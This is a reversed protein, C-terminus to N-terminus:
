WSTNVKPMKLKEPNRPIKSRKIKVENAGFNKCSKKYNERKKKVHLESKKKM